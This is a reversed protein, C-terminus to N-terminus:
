REIPAQRENLASEVGALAALVDIHGPRVVGEVGLPALGAVMGGRPPCLDGIGGEEGAELAQASGQLAEGPGALRTAPRAEGAEPGLAAARLPDEEHVGLTVREVVAM